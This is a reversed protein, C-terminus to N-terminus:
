TKAKLSLTFASEALRRGNIQLEVRHRGPHHRRTSFDRITQRKVLTVTEGPALALRTWKFVKESAKGSARPYHIVYDILLSQPRR